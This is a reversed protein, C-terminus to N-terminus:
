LPAHAEARINEPDTKKGTFFAALAIMLANDGTMDLTPLQYHTTPLEQKIAEGLDHRLKKNAAVGGGLIITRVKYEKAARITKAVLVEVVADQFSAAVARRLKM